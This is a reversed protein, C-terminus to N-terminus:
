SGTATTSRCGRGSRCRGRSPSPTGWRTWGSSPTGASPAAASTGSGSGWSTRASGGRKGPSPGSSRGSGGPNTAAAGLVLDYYLQQANRILRDMEKTIQPPPAVPLHLNRKMIYQVMNTLDHYSAAGAPGYGMRVGPRITNPPIVITKLILQRPHSTLPRGLAVVTADTVREFAARITEPYLVYPKGKVGPVASPGEANFSFYDDDAPVIKPHIVGCVPCRVGDTSVLSADNLRQTPPRVGAFKELNVVPYGCNLCVVRLWRRIEAIFLPSALPTHSRMRGLHGPDDRRGLRCTACSYHHDTTGMRADFCGDVAPVGEGTFLEYNEITVVADRENDADGAIRFTAREIEAYPATPPGIQM